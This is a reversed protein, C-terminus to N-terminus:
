TAMQWRFIGVMHRGNWRLAMKATELLQWYSPLSSLFQLADRDLNTNDFSANALTKTGTEEDCWRIVKGRHIRWHTHFWRRAMPHSIQKCIRHLLIRITHKCFKDLQGPITISPIHRPVLNWLKLWKDIHIWIRLKRTHSPLAEVFFLLRYLWGITRWKSWCRLTQHTESSKASSLFMASFMLSCDLFPHLPGTLKHTALQRCQCWKYLEAFPLEPDDM